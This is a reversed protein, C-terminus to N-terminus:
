FDSSAKPKTRAIDSAEEPDIAWVLHEDSPNPPVVHRSLLPLVRPLGSPNPPVVHRLLLPLVVRHEDSPNPPVVHRPLLPLVVRPLESPNPPVM